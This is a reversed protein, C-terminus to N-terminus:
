ICWELVYKSKKDEKPSEDRTFVNTTSEPLQAQTQDILLRFPAIIPLKASIFKM